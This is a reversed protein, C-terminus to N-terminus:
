ATPAEDVDYDFADFQDAQFNNDENHAVDQVPGEDVDDDFTNTQGGTLFLLPEEDLDVRIYYDHINEGKHKEFHEFEDYHQSQCDDKILESGQLLINTAHIDARLRDKKPQSLEAVVRNREPRLYPACIGLAIEYRCRGM